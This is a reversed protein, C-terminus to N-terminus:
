ARSELLVKQTNPDIIRLYCDIQINGRDDPKREVVTPTKATEQMKTDEPKM